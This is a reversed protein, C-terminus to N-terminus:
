SDLLSLSQGASIIFQLLSPDAFHVRNRSRDQEYESYIVQVTLVIDLSIAEVQCFNGHLKYM